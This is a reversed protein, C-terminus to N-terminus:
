ACSTIVVQVNTTAILKQVFNSFLPSMDMQSHMMQLLLILLGFIITLITSENELEILVFVFSVFNACIFSCFLFMNLSSLFVGHKFFTAHLKISNWSSCLSLVYFLLTYFCSLDECPSVHFRFGLAGHGFIIFTYGNKGVKTV